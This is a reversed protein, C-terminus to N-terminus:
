SLVGRNSKYDREYSWTIHRKVIRAPNGAIIIGKEDTSKTVVSGAAVVSDDNIAVGKLIIVHEGIWVHNGISINKAHNIKKDTAVDIISHSDSTRIDISFSLLCNNGITVQSRPELVSITTYGYLETKNGITLGCERDELWLTVSNYFKCEEGISINHNDGRVYFKVNNLSSGSKISIHNGNGVIDFVVSTLSANSHEIENNSGIISKTITNDHQRHKDPQHIGFFACWKGLHIQFYEKIDHVTM